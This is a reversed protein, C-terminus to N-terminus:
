VTKPSIVILLPSMSSEKFDTEKRGNVMEGKRPSELVRQDIHELILIYLPLSTTIHIWPPGWHMNLESAISERFLVQWNM